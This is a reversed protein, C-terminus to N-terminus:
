DFIITLPATLPKSPLGTHDLQWLTFTWTDAMLTGDASPESYNGQKDVSSLSACFSGSALSTGMVCYSKHMNLGGGSFTPQTGAPCDPPTDSDNRAALM